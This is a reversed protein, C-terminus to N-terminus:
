FVGKSGKTKKIDFNTKSNTMDYTMVATHCGDFMCFILIFMFCSEFVVSLGM